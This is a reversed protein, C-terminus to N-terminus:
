LLDEKTIGAYKAILYRVDSSYFPDHWKHLLRIIQRSKNQPREYELGCCKRCLPSHTSDYEFLYKVRRKCNNCIFYFIYGGLNAPQFDVQQKEWYCIDSAFDKFQKDPIYKSENLTKKLYEVQGFHRM